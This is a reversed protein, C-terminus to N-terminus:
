ARVDSEHMKILEYNKSMLKRWKCLNRRNKNPKGEKKAKAM